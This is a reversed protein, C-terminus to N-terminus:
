QRIERLRPAELNPTIIIIHSQCKVPMEAATSLSQSLELFDSNSM